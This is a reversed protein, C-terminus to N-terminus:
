GRSWNIIKLFTLEYPSDKKIYLNVDVFESKEYFRVPVIQCDNRLLPTGILYSSFIKEPKESKQIEPNLEPFDKKFNSKYKNKIDNSFYILSEKAISSIKIESLSFIQISNSVSKVFDLLEVPVKSLDLSGFDQLFPYIPESQINSVDIIKPNLKIASSIAVDQGINQVLRVAELERTWVIQSERNKSNKILYENKEAVPNEIENQSSNACSFFIFIAFILCFVKKLM